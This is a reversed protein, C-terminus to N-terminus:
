FFIKKRLSRPISNKKEESESFLLVKNTWFLPERSASKNRFPTQSFFNKELFFNKVSFFFNKLRVGSEPTPRIIASAVLGGYIKKERLGLFFFNKKGPTRPFFFFIERLEPPKSARRAAIITEGGVEGQPGWGGPRPFDNGRGDRGGGSARVRRTEPIKEGGMSRHGEGKPDRSHNLIRHSRM